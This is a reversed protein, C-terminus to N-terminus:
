KGAESSSINASGHSFMHRYAITTTETLLGSREADLEGFDKAIVTCGTFLYQRVARFTHNTTSYTGVALYLPLLLDIGLSLPNTGGTGVYTEVQLTFPKSIPKRLMHVYDNVGGEQLYDYENEKRFARIKRCPVDFVAEVTLLYSFSEVPDARSLQLLDQADEVIGNVINKGEDQLDTLNAM